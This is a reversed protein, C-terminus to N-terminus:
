FPEEVFAYLYCEFMQKVFFFSIQDQIGCEQIHEYWVRGLEETVPHRMNRILFGCACHSATTERFGKEVQKEIYEMYKACDVRYREQLMSEHFEDWVNNSTIFWHQRLLLAYSQEVFYKQIYEEVFTESVKNLKSDLFCLYDYKALEEYLHPQTKVHKGMMCSEKVDDTTKKDAEYMGIWPTEALREMITDNNTFYYCKYKSSPAPPISFSANGNSGYFCTYFALNM